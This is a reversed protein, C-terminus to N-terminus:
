SKVAVKNLLVRKITGSSLEIATYSFSASSTVVYREAEKYKGQSELMQAQKMYLTAVEDAKM